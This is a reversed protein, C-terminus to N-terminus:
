EVMTARLRSSTADLITVVVLVVILLASVQAYKMIRLASIIELGIGGAGVAGVVMSARFNYEWRYFTVDALSPFIQPLIGHTIVQLQSAGASKVAEIPERDCLEISEAFFKGLMGVSHLGLALTGPLSGFGVAAVLIMGLILEPVARTINLIFTSLYFLFPHPSTNRAAFFCLLLSLFVAISTGAISMAMSDVLPKVWHSWRSFDPPIMERILQSMAPVGEAIREPDFFGVIVLSAIVVILISLKRLVQARNKEFQQRLISNTM